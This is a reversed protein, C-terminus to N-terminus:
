PAATSVSRPSPAIQEVSEAIETAPQRRDGGVVRMEVVALAVGEATEDFDLRFAEIGLRQEGRQLRAMEIGALPRAQVVDADAAVLDDDLGRWDVRHRQQGARRARQVDGAAM